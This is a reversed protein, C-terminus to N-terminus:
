MYLCDLVGITGFPYCINGLMVGGVPIVGKVVAGCDFVSMAAM